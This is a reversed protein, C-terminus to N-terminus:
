KGKVEYSYNQHQESRYHLYRHKPHYQTVGTFLDNMGWHRQSECTSFQYWLWASSQVRALSRLLSFTAWPLRDEREKTLGWIWLWTEDTFGLDANRWDAKQQTYGGPVPALDVLSPTQRPRLQSADLVSCFGQETQAGRRQNKGLLHQWLGVVIRELRKGSPKSGQLLLSGALTLIYRNWREKLSPCPWMGWGLSQLPGRSGTRHPCLVAMQTVQPRLVM